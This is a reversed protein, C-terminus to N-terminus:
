ARGIVTVNTPNDLAIINRLLAVARADPEFAYVHGSEGVVRAALGANTGVDLVVDGPKLTRDPLM